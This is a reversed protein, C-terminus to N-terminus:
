KNLNILKRNFLQQIALAKNNRKEGRKIYELLSHSITHISHSKKKTRKRESALWAKESVLLSRNADTKRMLFGKSLIDSFVSLTINRKPGSGEPCWWRRKQRGSKTTVVSGEDFKRVWVIVFIRNKKRKQRASKRLIWREYYDTNFLHPSRPRLKRILDGSAM